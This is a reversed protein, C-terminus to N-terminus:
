ATQLNKEAFEWNVLHDLYATVFDPRRNQYDLYYAHEWVDLTLLAKGQGQSLPNEANSTKTIKLVGKDEVLWIWGSGFDSIGAEVFQKIFIEYSGFDTEIKRGLEGKPEGGGKPALSNWYFDHNWAQSANNFIKEKNTNGATRTIVEELKLEEYETESVLSNLNDLYIQHHKNYHYSLTEASIVPALANQEYPLESLVFPKAKTQAVFM